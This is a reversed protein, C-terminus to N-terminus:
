VCQMEKKKLLKTTIETRKTLLTIEAYNDHLSLHHSIPCTLCNLYDNVNINKNIKNM